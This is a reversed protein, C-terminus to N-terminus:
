FSSSTVVRANYVTDPFDDVGFREVCIWKSYPVVYDASCVNNQESLCISDSESSVSTLVRDVIMSMDQTTRPSERNVLAVSLLHLVIRVEKARIITSAVIVCVIVTITPLNLLHAFINLLIM